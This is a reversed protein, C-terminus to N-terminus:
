KGLLQVGLERELRSFMEQFRHRYTYQALVKRRGQEAIRRRLDERPVYFRIKDMMEDESAFTEIERGPKLVEEIGEIHQCLYFAGCGVAIYLRESMSNRIQPARDVGLFIRSLSAVQAYESGYIFRGGYARWLSSLFFPLNKLKRAPPPGWWKLNFGEQLVRSLFRRRVLYEPLESLNGVFTLTSGLFARSQPSVEGPEFFSPAFGQSLWAVRPVGAKRFDEVLGQAMTFFFDVKRALRLVTEDLVPDPHWQVILTSRSRAADLWHDQVGKGKTMLLAHPSSRELHAYFAAEPDAAAEPDFTEVRVGLERLGQAYYHGDDWPYRFRTALLIRKANEPYKVM